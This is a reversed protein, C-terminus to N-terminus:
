SWWKGIARVASIEEPLLEFPVELTPDYPIRNLLYIRLYNLIDVGVGTLWLRDIASAVSDWTRYPSDDTLAHLAAEVARSEKESLANRLKLVGRLSIAANPVRYESRNLRATRPPAADRGFEEYLVSRAIRSRDFQNLYVWAVRLLGKQSPSPAEWRPEKTMGVALLEIIHQLTSRDILEERAKELLNLARDRPQPHTRASRAPALAHRNKNM